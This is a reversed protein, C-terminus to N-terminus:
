ENYRDARGQYEGIAATKCLFSIAEEVTLETLVLYGARPTACAIGGQTWTGPPDRPRYGKKVIDNYCDQWWRKM